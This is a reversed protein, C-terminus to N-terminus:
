SDSVSCKFKECMAAIQIAECALRIAAAKLHEVNAIAYRPNNKKCNQWLVNLLTEVDRMESQAEEVEEKVIAYGEHSSRFLPFRRNASILEKSVLQEVDKQVANM